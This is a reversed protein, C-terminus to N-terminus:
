VQRAQLESINYSEKLSKYIYERGFGDFLTYNLGVNANYRTTKVGNTSNVSGDHLTNETDSVSFNASGGATVSPLYQSNKISANNKATQVNNDATRIDFNNELAIQVAESKGLIEQAYSYNISVIILVVPIILVKHLISNM